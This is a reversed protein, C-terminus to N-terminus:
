VLTETMGVLVSIRHAAAAVQITQIFDGDLAQGRRLGGAQLTPDFYMAAEPLLVLDADQAAAAAILEACRSTNTAIELDAAFQAVAVTIAM